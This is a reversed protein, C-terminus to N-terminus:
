LHLDRAGPEDIEVERGRRVVGLEQVDGLGTGGVAAAAEAGPTPHYDLEHGGVRGARQVDTVAPAGKADARVIRAQDPFTLGENFVLEGSELLDQDLRHQFEIHAKVDHPTWGVSGQTVDAVTHMMLMYKM